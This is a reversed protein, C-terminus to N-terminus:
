RKILPSAEKFQDIYVYYSEMSWYERPYVLYFSMLYRANPKIVQYDNGRIGTVHYWPGSKTIGDFYLIENENCPGSFWVEKDLKAPIEYKDINITEYKVSDNELQKIRNEIQNRRDKDAHELWGKNRQIELKIGQLAAQICGKKLEENSKM